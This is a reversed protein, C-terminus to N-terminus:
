PLPTVSPAGFVCVLASLLDLVISLRNKVVSRKDLRVRQDLSTAFDSTPNVINPARSVVGKGLNVGLCGLGHSTSSASTYKIIKDPSARKNTTSIKFM